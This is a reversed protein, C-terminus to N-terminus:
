SRNESSRIRKNGILVRYRDCALFEEISWIRAIGEARCLHIARGNGIFVAVHAGWPDATSNFLLLDLPELTRPKWTYSEDDWLESSRFPPIRLGADALFAYAFRQCNAGQSLDNEVDPLKTGDYPVTLFRAPIDIETM